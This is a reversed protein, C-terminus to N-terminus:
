RGHRRECKQEYTESNSTVPCQGEAYIIHLVTGVAGNCLGVTTWLNCTLMVRASKAIYLTPQLGGM